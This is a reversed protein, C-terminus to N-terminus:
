GHKFGEASSRAGMLARRWTCSHGPDKVQASQEEERQHLYLPMSRATTSGELGRLAWTKFGQLWESQDLGLHLPVGVRRIRRHIGQGQDKDKLQEKM